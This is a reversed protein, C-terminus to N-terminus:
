TPTKPPFLIRGQAGGPLAFNLNFSPTAILLRCEDGTGKPVWPLCSGGGGGFMLQQAELGGLEELM